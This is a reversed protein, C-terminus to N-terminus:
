KEKQHVHVDMQPFPINIGKANFADYVKEMTEMKVAWYDSGKLWVRTALNVSSDALGSVKVFPEPDKFIREDASLIEVLIKRAEEINDGYGIGFSWDLRRTPETSYNVIAETAHGRNPIIVTKNEPTKLITNFIQISNDTGSYSQAEIYDGFKFLKIVLIIVGGAFNQLTSSLAMGIALGAAGIIAVFSTM